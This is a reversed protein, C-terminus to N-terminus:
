FYKDINPLYLQMTVMVVLLNQAGIFTKQIECMLLIKSKECFTTDDLSWDISITAVLENVVTVPSSALNRTSM